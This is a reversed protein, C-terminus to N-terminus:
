QRTAFLAEAGEAPSLGARYYGALSERMARSPRWPPTIYAAALAEDFVALSLEELKALDVDSLDGM